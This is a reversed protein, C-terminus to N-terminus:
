VAGRPIVVIGDKISYYEGDEEVVGRENVIKVGNGIRADLDVIARRIVCDRGIGLPVAPTPAGVPEYFRAGMVVSSEIVSGPRIVARIGVISDRIEAKTLISGECLISQSVTCENIKPG